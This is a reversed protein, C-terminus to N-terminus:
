TRLPEAARVGRSHHSKVSQDLGVAMRPSETSARIDRYVGAADPVGAVGVPDGGAHFPVDCCGIVPNFSFFQVCPTARLGRTRPELGQRRVMSRGPTEGRDKSKRCLPVHQQTLDTLLIQGLCPRLYPRVHAAYGRITSERPGALQALWRDLWHGTVEMAQPDDPM